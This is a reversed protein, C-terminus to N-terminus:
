AAVAPTRWALESVGFVPRYHEQVVHALADRVLTPDYQRSLDSVMSLIVEQLAAGTRHLPTAAPVLERSQEALLM